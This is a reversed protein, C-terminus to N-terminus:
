LGTGTIRIGARPEIVAAVGVRRVRPRYADREDIRMVKSELGLADPVSTYGPSGLAETAIGGLQESDVLLPDNFPVNNSTVWTKGLVNPIVGSAVAGTIGGALMDAKIFFGAVKAFQLPKLLVADGALGLDLADLKADATLVDTVIIEGNTWAATAAHTATVESGVIGLAKSDVRRITRNVMKALARNVPDLLLRRIAEDTIETDQGEKETRVTEPKGEGATTVPYEAGPAVVQPDDDSFLSDDVSWSIAGGEASYRGKLLFDAVFRQRALEAVRRAVLTPSKLFAHVDAATVDQGAGNVYPYTYAM